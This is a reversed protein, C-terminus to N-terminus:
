LLRLFIDLEDKTITLSPRLRISVNGCKGVIVGQLQLEEIMEDRIRTTPLDFAILMGKGRVNTYNKAIICKKTYKGLIKMREMLQEEEVVKLIEDLILMRGTDGMWTNFIQFTYKPRFKKDAFFGAAQFKKAFTVIDPDVGWYEHAWMRGTAGLGTQVEDVIFPVEWKRSLTHVNRFFNDSAHLDGGEALIPEVIIGAHSGSQFLTDLNELCRQEDNENKPFPAKDWEFLPLGQRYIPQTHTASLTGLTRGHFSNSFSLMTLPQCGKIVRKGKWLFAAKIAAENALAGSVDTHIYGTAQNMFKPFCSPLTKDLIHIQQIDPFMGNAFRHSLYAHNEMSKKLLRPHNYGLPLSAIQTLLDLYKKGASDVVFNGKCKKFDIILRFNDTTQRKKFQNFLSKM